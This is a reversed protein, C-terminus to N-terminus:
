MTIIIAMEMVVIAMVTMVMMCMVGHGIIDGCDGYSDCNSGSHDHGHHDGECWWNNSHMTTSNHLPTRQDWTALSFPFLRTGM